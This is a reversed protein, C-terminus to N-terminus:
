SHEDEHESVDVGPIRRGSFQIKGTITQPTSPPLPSPKEIDPFEVDGGDNGSEGGGNGGSHYQNMANGSDYSYRHDHSKKSGTRSSSGNDSAFMM